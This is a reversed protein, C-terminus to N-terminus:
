SGADRRQTVGYGRGLVAEIVAACQEDDLARPPGIVAARWYLECGWELLRTNEVAQTLDAGHSIAGHNAMLAAMRDELAALTAQALEATGFAAYPAVRVPGGLALLQYHVIPLEDLVCALATAYPAHTHVVAGAGYRRYVGLHLDMESTPRLEGWQQVGDLDVVAIDRATLNELAAGTPTVAVSEGARLSLNGATGHVLGAAALDRAAAALQEREADLTAGSM